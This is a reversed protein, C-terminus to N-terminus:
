QDMIRILGPPGSFALKTELLWLPMDKLTQQMSIAFLIM